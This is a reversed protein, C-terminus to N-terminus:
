MCGAGVSAKLFAVFPAFLAQSELATWVPTPLTSVPRIPPNSTELRHEAFSVRGSDQKVHGVDLFSLPVPRVQVLSRPM